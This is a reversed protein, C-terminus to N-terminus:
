VNGARRYPRSGPRHRLACGGPRSVLDSQREQERHWGVHSAVLLAVGTAISTLELKQWPTLQGLIALVMILLVGEALATVVYWRRWAQHQVLAIALLSAIGLTLLTGVLPAQAARGAALRTLTLLAGAVFGLSLLANACGFAAGALGATSFKELVAFRYGVLLALGVLAFTVTYYEHALEWSVFLQWVAGCGTATALYVNFAERGFVAALTYFIAAEAFFWALNRNLAPGRAPEFVHDPV